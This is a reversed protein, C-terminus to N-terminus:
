TTLFSSVRPSIRRRVDASSWYDEMSQNFARPPVRQRFWGLAIVIQAISVVAFAVGPIRAGGLPGGAANELVFFVGGVLALGAVLALHLIRAGRAANVTQSASM